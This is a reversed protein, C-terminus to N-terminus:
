ERLCPDPFACGGGVAPMAVPMVLAVIVIVNMNSTKVVPVDSVEAYEDYHAPIRYRAPM